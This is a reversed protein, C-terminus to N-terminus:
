LFTGKLVEKSLGFKQIRLGMKRETLGLLKAAKSYNGNTAKLADLIMDKEIQDLRQELNQFIETKSSQATQLTPPLHHAMIVGDSALLVAREITNELERINGPWHYAMLLNIATSAIRKVNKGHRQNYKEIFHDVLLPIDSKRERLPPVHIPFVNLRYFLDERFKGQSMLEELNRNTAAIVRTDISIPKGSGVREIEREQLARLLKVQILPSLDGIEDLFLTGGHALEFRGKRESVAGTFAGKEHGFLESEILSEPLAACNVRIFPGEHRLSNYHIVSAIIEKGTGSEGRILVTANSTSVQAILEFVQRIAHNTGIINDFRFKETLAQNLRINERLLFEKEEQFQQRLSVNQAIMSAIVTLVQIDVDILQTDTYLKDVGLAGITESGQRIPICIFSLELDEPRRRANTKNLFRPEEGIRPVVIPRGTQIVEGTIGEGLRYRGRSKEEPTLNFGTDIIIESTNRNLLTLIGRNIQIGSQLKKFISEIIEEFPLPSSIVQSIDFLLSLQSLRDKLDTSLDLNSM